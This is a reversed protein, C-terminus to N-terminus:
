RFAGSLQWSVAPTIQTLRMQRRPVSAAHIVAGISGSSGVRWSMRGTTSVSAIAAAPPIVKVSIPTGAPRTEPETSATAVAARNRRGVRTGSHSARIQKTSIPMSSPATTVGSVRAPMVVQGSLTASRMTDVIQVM